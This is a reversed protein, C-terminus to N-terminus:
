RPQTPRGSFITLHSPLEAFTDDDPWGIAKQLTQVSVLRTQWCDSPLLLRSGLERRDQNRLDDSVAPERTGVLSAPERTKVVSCSMWM